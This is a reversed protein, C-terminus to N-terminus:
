IDARKRDIPGDCQRYARQNFHTRMRRRYPDTPLKGEKSPRGVHPPITSIIGHEERLLHIIPTLHVEQACLPPCVDGVDEAGGGVGDAASETTM